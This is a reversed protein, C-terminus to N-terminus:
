KLEKLIKEANPVMESTPAMQIFKELYLIAQVRNKTAAYVVGLNHYAQFIEPNLELTKIYAKEANAFDKGTFFANGLMFYSNAALRKDYEELKTVLPLIKDIMNARMYLEILNNYFLGTVPARDIATSYYKIATEFDQQSGKLQALYAYARGLNGWYYANGPNLEVGRKYELVSNEMVKLQQTKDSLTGALREYALGLYVHYKVEYPEKKVSKIHEEVSADWKNYVSGIIKGRNYSVDASYMSYAKYILICSAVAALAMLVSKAAINNALPKIEVTKKVGPYYNNYIFFHSAMFVYLATNIACVGFSFLNQVFYATFGSAMGLSLIKLDYDEMRRFPKIIMKIYVWLLLFYVGLAPIGMTAAVNLPENHATRSSVNAGDINAFDTGSFKPFITKFTDVGTGLLPYEKIMKIAPMWIHLRSVQLSKKINTVSSWLRDASNRGVTVSLVAAIFLVAAVAALWNKYRTFFASLVGSFNKQEPDLGDKISRYGNFLGYAIFVLASFVFGLFPGRSQTGFLSIYLLVFLCSLGAAILYTKKKMAMLIFSINLPIMMILLAGLFNPNGMSAFYRGKIMSDANWKIIDTGSYQMMSYIGTLLGSLLLAGALTFIQKRDKINQSAIFYIVVYNLNSLSGAFNEYEGRFSLHPAFSTLTTLINLFSWILLPFDLPTPTWELKGKDFVKILWLGLMISTLIRLVTLKPLEFQDYSVINFFVPIILLAAALIWFILKECLLALGTGERIVQKEQKKTKDKVM